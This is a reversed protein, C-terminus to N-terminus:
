RNIICLQATTPSPTPFPVNNVNCWFSVVHETLQTLDPHTIWVHICIALVLISCPLAACTLFCVPRGWHTLTCWIITIQSVVFSSFTVASSATGPFRDTLSSISFQTPQFWCQPVKTVRKQCCFYNCATFRQHRSALSESTRGIVASAHLGNQLGTWLLVVRCLSGQQTSSMPSFVHFVGSLCRWVALKYM